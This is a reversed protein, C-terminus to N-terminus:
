NRWQYLVTQHITHTTKDPVETFTESDLSSFTNALSGMNRSFFPPADGADPSKPTNGDLIGTLRLFREREATHNYGAIVSAFRPAGSATQPAKLIQQLTAADSAFIGIHNSLAFALPQLGTLEYWSLNGETHQQWNLGHNSATLQARLADALSAQLADANWSDATLLVASHTPIFIDSPAASTSSTVLMSSIHASELVARLPALSLASSQQQPPTEDIRTDLDAASGANQVTVDAVPAIREDRYASPNRTLLKDNLTDLVQDVGPLATARYVGASTPLLALMPQLDVRSPITDPSVPLLVREERFSGATRYLNSVSSSFQKMATINRQIWYSRFYPSPVIRTLNLAMRLDGAPAHAAVLAASYWSEDALSQKAQNQMLLLANAILDERTALLLYDGHVAFAVTRQPQGQTHVYFSETGAQRQQFKSRLQMLPTQEAAASPMHTIYLFELNGIDYWAFISEKGAVQTLFNMDPPLGASTAFEGQADGLRSFLRSRSFDAYNDSTLWRQQEPSKSWDKLLGSFDLAEISLLSGQPVWAALTPAAPAAMEYAAWLAGAVLVTSLSILAVPNRLLRPLRMM